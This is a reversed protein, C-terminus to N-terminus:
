AVQEGWMSLRSGDLRLRLMMERIWARAAPHVHEDYQIYVNVVASAQLLALVPWLADPEDLTEDVDLGLALEGLAPLSGLLLLEPWMQVPDLDLDQLRTARALIHFDEGSLPVHLELKTLQMGLLAEMWPANNRPGPGLVDNSLLTEPIVSVSSSAAGLVSLREAAQCLAQEEEKRPLADEGQGSELPFCVCISLAPRSRGLLLPLQQPHQRDLTLHTLKPPLPWPGSGDPAYLSGCKLSKLSPLCSLCSADLDASSDLKVLRSQSALLLRDPMYSTSLYTLGTLPLLLPSAVESGAKAFSLCRLGVLSAVPGAAEWTMLGFCSMRLEKLQMAGCLAETLAPQADFSMGKDDFHICHLRPALLQLASALLQLASALAVTDAEEQMEVALTRLQPFAAAVQQPVSALLDMHLELRTTSLSAWRSIDLFPRLLALGHDRACGRIVVDAPRCGRLLM